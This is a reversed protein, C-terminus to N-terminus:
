MKERQTVDKPTILTEKLTPISLESKTPLWGFKHKIICTQASM